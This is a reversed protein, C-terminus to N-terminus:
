NWIKYFHKGKNVKNYEKKKNKSIHFFSYPRVAWSFNVIPCPIQVGNNFFILASKCRLISSDPSSVTLLNFGLYEWPTDLGPRCTLVLSYKVLSLWIWENIVTRRCPPRKSTLLKIKLCYQIRWRHWFVSCKRVVPLFNLPDIM